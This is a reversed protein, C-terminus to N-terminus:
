GSCYNCYIDFKRPEQFQDAYIGEAGNSLLSLLASLALELIQTESGDILHSLFEAIQQVIEAPPPPSLSCLSELFEGLSFTQPMTRLKAIINNQLLFDRSQISHKVTINMLQLASDALNPESDLFNYLETLVEPNEFFQIPFNSSTVTTALCVWVYYLIDPSPPPTHGFIALVPQFPFNEVFYNLVNQYIQIDLSIRYINQLLLELDLDKEQFQSFLININKIFELDRTKINIDANFQDRTAIFRNNSRIAECDHLNMISTPNLPRMKQFLM